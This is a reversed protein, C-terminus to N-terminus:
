DFQLELLKGFGNDMKYTEKNNNYKKNERQYGKKYSQDHVYDKSEKLVIRRVWSFIFELEEFSLENIHYEPKKITKDVFNCYGFRESKGGFTTNKMKILAINFKNKDNYKKGINIANIIKPVYNGCNDNSIERGISEALLLLEKKRNLEM